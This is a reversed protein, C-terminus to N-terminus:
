PLSSTLIVNGAVDQVQANGTTLRVDRGVNGHVAILDCSDASISDVNGTVNIEIHKADKLSVESGNVFVRGNSIVLNSKGHTQIAVGNVVVTTQAFSPLSSALGM